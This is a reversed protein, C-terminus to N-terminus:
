TFGKATIKKKMALKNCVISLEKERIIRNKLENYIRVANKSTGISEDVEEEDEEDDDIGKEKEEEVKKENVKNKLLNNRNTKNKLIDSDVGLHKAVDFNKAEDEDDVFFIHKNKFHNAADIMHYNAQIKKIKKMEMVRKMNIYNIDQTEM